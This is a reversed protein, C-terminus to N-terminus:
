PRPRRTSASGLAASRRVLRQVEQATADLCDALARRNFKTDAREKAAYDRLEAVIAAPATGSAKTMREVDSAVSALWSAMELHNTMIGAAERSAYFRLLEILEKSAVDPPTIEHLLGQDHAAPQTCASSLKSEAAGKVKALEDLAVTPASSGATAAANVPEPAVLGRRIGHADFIVPVGGVLGINDLGADGWEFGRMSLSIQLAALHDATVAATDVRPLVEYRLDGLTGAMEAQLVEPIAPRDPLPGLGIRLVKDGVALVVSSAGAGIVTAADLNGIGLRRIERELGGVYQSSAVDQAVPDPQLGFSTERTAGRLLAALRKGWQPRTRYLVSYGCTATVVEFPKKTTSTPGAVVFVAEPAGLEKFRDSVIDAYEMASELTSMGRFVSADLAMRGPQATPGDCVSAWEDIRCRRLGDVVELQLSTSM